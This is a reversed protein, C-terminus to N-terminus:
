GAINYNVMVVTEVDVAKDDLIFPRYKWQRVTDMAPGRLQEPGTIPELHKVAGDVGILVKLAVSGQIKERRAADPYHPAVRQVVFAYMINQSVHIPKMNETAADQQQAVKSPSETKQEKTSPIVRVIIPGKSPLKFKFPFLFSVSTAKGDRTFPKFKWQKAAAVASEGLLPEGNVILANEVDGSESIEVKILVDGALNKEEAPKPYIPDVKTVLELTLDEPSAADQAPSYSFLGCLLLLTCFRKM